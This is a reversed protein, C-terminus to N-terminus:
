QVCRALYAPVAGSRGVPAARAPRTLCRVAAAADRRRAAVRRSRRKSLHRQPGPSTSQDARADEPTELRPSHLAEPLGDLYSVGPAFGLCAVGREVSVQVARSGPASDAVGDIAVNHLTQYYETPHAASALLHAVRPSAWIVRITAMECACFPPEIHRGHGNGASRQWTPTLALVRATTPSTSCSRSSPRTACAAQYLWSDIPVSLPTQTQDALTGLKTRSHRCATVRIHCRVM